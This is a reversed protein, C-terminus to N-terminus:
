KTAAEQAAPVIFSFVLYGCYSCSLLLSSLSVVGGRSASAHRSAEPMHAWSPGPTVGSCQGAAPGWWVVLDVLDLVFALVILTGKGLWAEWASAQHGGVPARWLSGCRLLQLAPM